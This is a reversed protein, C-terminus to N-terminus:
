PIPDPGRPIARPTKQVLDNFDKCDGSFIGLEAVPSGWNRLQPNERPITQPDGTGFQPNRQPNRQPNPCQRGRSFVAEAGESRDIRAGESRDIRAGRCGRSFVAQLSGAAESYLICSAAGAWLPKSISLWSIGIRVAVHAASDVHPIEDSARERQRRTKQCQGVRRRPAHTHHRTRRGAGTRPRCGSGCRRHRGPDAQPRTPGASQEGARCVARCCRHESAPQGLAIQPGVKSSAASSKEANQFAGISRMATSFGTICPCALDRMRM